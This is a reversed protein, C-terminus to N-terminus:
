HCCLCGQSCKIRNYEVGSREWDGGEGKWKRWEKWSWRRMGWMDESRKEWEDILLCLNAPSSGCTHYPMFVCMYSVTCMKSHYFPSSVTYNGFRFQWNGYVTQTEVWHGQQRWTPSTTTTNTSRSEPLDKWFSTTSTGRSFALKHFLKISPLPSCSSLPPHM